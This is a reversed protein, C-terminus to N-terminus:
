PAPPRRRSELEAAILYAVGLVLALASLVGPWVGVGILASPIMRNFNATTGAVAIGAAIYRSAFLVTAIACFAVGTGRRSM